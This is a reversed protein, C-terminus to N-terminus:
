RTRPSLEEMKDMLLDRGDPSSFGLGQHRATGKGSTPRRTMIIVRLNKFEVRTELRETLPGTKSFGAFLINFCMRIRKEFKMWFSCRTVASFAERKPSSPRRGRLVWTALLRVSPHAKSVSHKEMFESWISASESGERKASSPPFPSIPGPTARGNTKALRDGVTGPILFPASQPRNPPVSSPGQAPSRASQRSLASPDGHGQSIVRKNCSKKSRPATITEEEQNLHFRFGGGTWRSVVM